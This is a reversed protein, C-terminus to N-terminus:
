MRVTKSWNKMYDANDTKDKWVQYQDDYEYYDSANVLKLHREWFIMM